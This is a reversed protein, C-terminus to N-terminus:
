FSKRLESAGSSLAINEGQEEEASNSSPIDFSAVTVFCLCRPM